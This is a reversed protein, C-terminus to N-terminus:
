LADYAGTNSSNDKIQFLSFRVVYLIGETNNARSISVTKSGIRIGNNDYVEVATITINGSVTHDILFKVEVRGDNLLDVSQIPADYWTSGVKYRASAVDNRIERQKSTIFAADLIFDDAM